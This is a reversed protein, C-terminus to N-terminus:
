DLRQELWTKTRTRRELGKNQGKNQGKTREKAREKKRERVQKESPRIKKKETKWKRESKRKTKRESARENRKERKNRERRKRKQEACMWFTNAKKHRKFDVCKKGGLQLWLPAEITIQHITNPMAHLGRYKSLQPTQQIKSLHHHPLPPIDTILVVHKILSIVFAYRATQCSYKALSFDLYNQAESYLTSNYFRAHM